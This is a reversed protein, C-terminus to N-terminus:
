CVPERAIKGTILYIYNVGVGYKDAITQGTAGSAYMTRIDRVDADTLKIIGHNLRHSYVTTACLHVPNVCLKNGCDHHVQRSSITRGNNEVPGHEQEYYHVHAYKHEGNVYLHGYGSSNVARQWVWCGNEDVVYPQNAPSKLGSHGKIYRQPQGKIIGYRKDNGVAIPAKGGCGCMCLGSPNPGTISM